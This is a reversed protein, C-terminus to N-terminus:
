HRANKKNQIFSFYCFLHVTTTSRNNEGLPGGGGCIHSHIVREKMVCTEFKLACLFLVEQKPLM